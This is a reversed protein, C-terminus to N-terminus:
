DRTTLKPETAMRGGDETLMQVVEPLAEGAKGRVVVDAIGSIPTENPNIEVLFAGSSKAFRPLSAAPEVVASTGISFFVDCQRAKQFAHEIADRPLTEGFWVVDPRILSGCNPCALMGDDTPRADARDVVINERSCRNRQLNGHLEIVDRSGALRHLGDINQTVVVLHPFLEQMQALAYHGANPQTNRRVERRWEYWDWVLKPNQAFAEATALVMPDYKAWLGSQPDRFTPIGSEESAGAGTLVVIRSANRLREFLTIPLELKSVQTQISM